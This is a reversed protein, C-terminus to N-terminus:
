NDTIGGKLHTALSIGANQCSFIYKRNSAPIVKLILGCLVHLRHVFPRLSTTSLLDLCFVGQNSPEM